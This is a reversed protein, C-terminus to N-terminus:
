GAGAGRSSVWAENGNLEVKLNTPPGPAQAPPEWTLSLEYTVHASGGDQYAVSFAQVSIQRQRHACRTRPIPPLCCTPRALGLPSPVPLYSQTQLGALSPSAM